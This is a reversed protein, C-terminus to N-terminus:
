NGSGQVAAGAHGAGLALAGQNSSLSESSHAVLLNPAIYSSMPSFRKTAAHAVSTPKQQPKTKSAAMPTRYM